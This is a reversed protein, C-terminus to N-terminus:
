FLIVLLLLILLVSGVGGAPSYGWDRSYPWAPLSGVLLMILLIFFLLEIMPGGKRCTNVANM